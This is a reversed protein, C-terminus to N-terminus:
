ASWAEPPVANELLRALLAAMRDDPAARRARDIAAWALAGDGAQWSAFALLDAVAPVYEDPTRPLVGAWLKRHEEANSRDIEKMAADRGEVSQVSTILRALASGAPLASRVEACAEADPELSAVMEARSRFSLRGAVMAELVYPHNSVDYAFPQSVGAPGGVFRFQEGDAWLCVLLDIGRRRAGARLVRCVSRVIREREGYVLFAVARVGHVGAPELLTTEVLGLDQTSAREPLDLRAHFPRPGGFTMMVLSDQPWFGLLVPALALLDEPSRATVRQQTTM